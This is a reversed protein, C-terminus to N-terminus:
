SQRARARNVHTREDQRSRDFRALSSFTQPLLRFNLHTVNGSAFFSSSHSRDKGSVRALQLAQELAETSRLAAALKLTEASPHSDNLCDPVRCFRDIAVLHRKSQGFARTTSREQAALLSTASKIVKNRKLSNRELDKSSAGLRTNPSSVRLRDAQGSGMASRATRASQQQVGADSSGGTAPQNTANFETLGNSDTDETSGDAWRPMSESYHGHRASSASDTVDEADSQDCDVSHAFRTRSQKCIERGLLTPSRFHLDADPIQGETDICTNNWVNRLAEVSKFCSSLEM